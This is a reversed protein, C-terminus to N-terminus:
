SCCIQNTYIWVLLIVSQYVHFGGFGWFADLLFFFSFWCPFVFVVFLKTVILMEWCADCWVCQLMKAPQSAPQRPPYTCALLPCPHPLTQHPVLLNTGYVIFLLNTGRFVVMHNTGCFQLCHSEHWLIYVIRKTGCFVLISWLDTFVNENIAQYITM